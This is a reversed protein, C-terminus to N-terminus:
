APMIGAIYDVMDQATCVTLRLPTLTQLSLMLFSVSCHALVMGAINGVM